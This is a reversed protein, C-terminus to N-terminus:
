LFVLFSAEDPMCIYLYTYTSMLHYLMIWDLIYPSIQVYKVMIRPVTESIGSSHLHLHIYIYTFTFTFKVM